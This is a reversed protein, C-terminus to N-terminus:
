MQLFMVACRMTLHVVERKINIMEWMCVWNGRRRRDSNQTECAAGDLFAVFEATTSAPTRPIAFAPASAVGFMLVRPRLTNLSAACLLRIYRYLQLLSTKFFVAFVGGIIRARTHVGFRDHRRKM